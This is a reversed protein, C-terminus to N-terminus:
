STNTVSFLPAPTYLSISLMTSIKPRTTHKHFSYGLSYTQNLDNVGDFDGTCHQGELWHDTEYCGLCRQCLKVIAEEAIEKQFPEHM